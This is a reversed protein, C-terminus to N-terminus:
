REEEKMGRRGEEERKERRKEERRKEERRKEVRRKEKRGRRGGSDLGLSLHQPPTSNKILRHLFVLISLTDGPSKIDLHNCILTSSCIAPSEDRPDYQPDWDQHCLDLWLSDAFIL